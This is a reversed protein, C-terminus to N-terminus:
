EDGALEVVLIVVSFALFLGLAIKNLLSNQDIDEQPRAASTESENEQSSEEVPEMTIQLTDMQGDPLSVNQSHTKYGAHQLEVNYNAPRLKNTTYPTEGVPKGNLSVTAGEPESFVALGAPQILDFSVEQTDGATVMITAKKLFFGPKKLVVSHKAGVTLSVTQPTQGIKEGDIELVAGSPDSKIIVVGQSATQTEITDPEDTKKEEAQVQPTPQTAVKKAVPAKQKGAADLVASNEAATEQAATEESATEEAATEEAATEEAATEESATEESATEESATE